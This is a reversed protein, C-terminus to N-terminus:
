KFNPRVHLKKPSNTGLCGSNLDSITCMISSSCSSSSSNSDDHDDDDDDDGDDDYMQKCLTM